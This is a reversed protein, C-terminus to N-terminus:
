LFVQIHHITDERRITDIEPRREDELCSGGFTVATLGKGRQGVSSASQEREM